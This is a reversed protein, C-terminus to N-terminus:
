NVALFGDGDLEVTVRGVGNVAGTLGGVKVWAMGHYYRTTTGASPYAYMRVPGDVQNWADFITTEATDVNAEFSASWSLTGSLQTRYTDGFALDEELERDTSLDFSRAETIETAAAASTSGLYIRANRFHLTSM